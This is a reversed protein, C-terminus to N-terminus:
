ECSWLFDVEDTTFDVRHWKCINDLIVRESDRKFAGIAMLCLEVGTLGHEAMIDVVDFCDELYPNVCKSDGCARIEHWFCEVTLKLHARQFEDSEL